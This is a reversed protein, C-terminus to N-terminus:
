VQAFTDFPNYIVRVPGVDLTRTAGTAGTALVAFYPRISTGSAMYAITTHTAVIQGNMYFITRPASYPSQTGHYEIRCSVWTNATATVATDTNDVDFLGSDSATVAHWTTNASAKVFTIGNYPVTDPDTDDHFGALISVNNAGGANIKMCWCMAVSLPEGPSGVAEETSFIPSVTEIYSWDPGVESASADTSVSVVPMQGLSTSTLGTSILANTTTSYQWRGWDPVTVQGSSDGTENLFFLWPEYLEVLQPTFYGNHDFYGRRNGGANILDVLALPTSGVTVADNDRKEFIHYSNVYAVYDALVKFAQAVSAANVPDGDAPLVAIPEENAGPTPAPAQTATPDGTYNTSM